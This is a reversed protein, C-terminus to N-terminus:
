PRADKESVMTGHEYQRQSKQFLESNLILLFILADELRNRLM